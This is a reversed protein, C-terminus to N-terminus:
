TLEKPDVPAQGPGRVRLIYVVDGEIAFIARYVRGRPTKFLAQQISFDCDKNELAEGFSRADEKLRDVTSDYARLWSAAGAPSREHLWHYIVEKDRKALPLERVTLSM